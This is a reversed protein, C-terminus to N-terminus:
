KLNTSKLVELILLQVDLTITANHSMAISHRTLRKFSKKCYDKLSDKTDIKLTRAIPACVPIIMYLLLPLRVVGTWQLIAAKVGVKLKLM